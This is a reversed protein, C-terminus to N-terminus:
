NWILKYDRYPDLRTCHTGIHGDEWEVTVFKLVPFKYAHDYEVALVKYYRGWYGCWYIKGVEYLSNKTLPKPTFGHKTIAQKLNWSIRISDM